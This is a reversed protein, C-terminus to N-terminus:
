ATPTRTLSINVRLHKGPAVAFAMSAFCAQNGASGSIAKPGRRWPTFTAWSSGTQALGHPVCTSLSKSQTDSAVSCACCALLFFCHRTALPSHRSLQRTRANGMSLLMRGRAVHERVRQPTRARFRGTLVLALPVSRPGGFYPVASQVGQGALSSALTQTSCCFLLSTLPNRSPWHSRSFVCRQQLDQRLM